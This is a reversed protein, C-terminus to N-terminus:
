ESQPELQYISQVRRQIREATRYENVVALGLQGQNTESALALNTGITRNTFIISLRLDDRCTCSETCIGTKGNGTGMGTMDGTVQKGKKTREEQM